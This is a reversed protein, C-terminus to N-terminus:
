ASVQSAASRDAAVLQREQGAQIRTSPASAAADAAEPNNGAVADRNGAESEHHLKEDRREAKEARAEAIAKKKLADHDIITYSGDPNRRKEAGGILMFLFDEIAFTVKATLYYQWGDEKKQYKEGISKILSPTRVFTFAGYASYARREDLAFLLPLGQVFSILGTWFYGGNFKYGQTLGKALLAADKAIAPNLQGRNRWAGLMSLTGIINYGLGLMERKHHTWDPVWVAQKLREGIYRLPHLTRMKAMREIEQDSEKKEPILAGLTFIVLGTGTTRSQWPNGLKLPQAQKGSAVLGKNVEIQHEVERMSADHLNTFGKFTEVPSRRFIDTFRGNKPKGIGFIDASIKKAPQWVWNIPNSPDDILKNGRM